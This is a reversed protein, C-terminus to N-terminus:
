DNKHKNFIIILYILKKIEYLLSLLIVLMSKFLNNDMSFVGEM